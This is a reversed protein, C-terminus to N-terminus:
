LRNILWYWFIKDTTFLKMSMRIFFIKKLINMYLELLRHLIDNIKVMSLLATVNPSVYRFQLIVKIYELALLFNQTVHSVGISSIIGIIYLM